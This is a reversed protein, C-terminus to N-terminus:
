DNERLFKIVQKEQEMDELPYIAEVRHPCKFSGRYYNPDDTICITSTGVQLDEDVYGTISARFPVPNNFVLLYSDMSNSRVIMSQKDSRRSRRYQFNDLKEISELGLQSYREPLAISDEEAFAPASIFLCLPILKKM